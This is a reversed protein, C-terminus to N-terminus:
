PPKGLILPYNAASLLPRRRAAQELLRILLRVSEEFWEIGAPMLLAPLLASIVRAIGHRAQRRPREFVARAQRGLDSEGLLVCLIYAPFFCVLLRGTREAM